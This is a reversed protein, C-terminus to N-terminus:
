PSRLENCPKRSTEFTLKHPRIQPRHNHKAKPELARQLDRQLAKGLAREWFREVKLHGKEGGGAEEGRGEGECGGGVGGGSPSPPSPLLSVFKMDRSQFGGM